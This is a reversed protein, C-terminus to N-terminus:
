DGWFHTAQVRRVGITRIICPGLPRITWYYSRLPELRRAVIVQGVAAFGVTERAAADGAVRTVRVTWLCPLAHIDRHPIGEVKAPLEGRHDKAACSWAQKAGIGVFPM